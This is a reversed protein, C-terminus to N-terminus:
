TPASPKTGGLLRILIDNQSQADLALMLGDRNSKDLLALDNLALELMGEAAKRLGETVGSLKFIHAELTKIEDVLLQRSRQQDPAAAPGGAPIADLHALARQLRQKRDQLSVTERLIRTVQCALNHGEYAHDLMRYGSTTVQRIKTFDAKRTELSAMCAAYDLAFVGNLVSRIASIDQGAVTGGLLLALVVPEM